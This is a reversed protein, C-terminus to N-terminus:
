CSNWRKYLKEKRDQHVPFSERYTALKEMDLDYEAYVGAQKTPELPEGEPSVIMSSAVYKLGSGDEGTRNVGIMFVQNEIARARLLTRWHEVRKQPWNAINVIIESGERRLATYLEPFRLDYCISMGIVCGNVEGVSLTDGPKYFRDEGAYSFPHIKVYECNIEGCRDLYVLVNEAGEGTSRIYGFVIAISKAAAEKRFAELTEPSTDDESLKQTDMSFGTLTMEPFLIMDCQSSAAKEIYRRCQLLNEEKAEWKQDLSVIAIKM